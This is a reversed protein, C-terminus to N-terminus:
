PTLPANVGRKKPTTKPKVAELEEIAMKLLELAHEEAGVGGCLLQATEIAYFFAKNFPGHPCGLPYEMDDDQKLFGLAYKAAERDLIVPDRFEADTMDINGMGDSPAGPRYRARKAMELYAEKYRNFRWETM